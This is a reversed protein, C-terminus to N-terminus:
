ASSFPPQPVEASSSFNLSSENVKVQLEAYVHAKLLQSISNLTSGLSSLCSSCNGSYAITLLHQPSLHEVCVRGGDIAVLPEIHTEMFQKIIMTRQELSLQGWEETTHPSIELASPFAIPNNDTFFSPEQSILSLQKCEDALGDIADLIMHYLPESEPLVPFSTASSHLSHDLDEFSLRLGESCPKNLVLSCSIEALILLYPHGFYQFKADLIKGSQKEVLWYLVVCNGILYHGQRGTILHAHRQEADEETFIGAHHFRHFIELVKRPILPAIM